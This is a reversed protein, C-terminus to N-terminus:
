EYWLNLVKSLQSFNESPRLHSRMLSQLLRGYFVM